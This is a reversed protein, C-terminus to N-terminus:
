KHRVITIITAIAVAVLLTLAIWLWLPINTVWSSTETKEEAVVTFSFTPSSESLFPETIRVQWFYTTDWDLEADYDYSVQSLKTITVIQELSSDKALTLEYETAEAQPTWSFSPSRDVNAAEAAPTLLKPSSHVTPSPEQSPTSEVSFSMVESWEGKGTEGTVARTVRMKWYYTEGAELPVTRSFLEWTPAFPSDPIVTEQATVQNFDKDKALWLEYKTAQSPHRWKFNINAVKGTDPNVPIVEDMAPAILSPAKFLLEPDIGPSIPQPGLTMCDSFNWLRGTTGTYARNDIAWLDVNGSAKLSTPERTFIVGPSLGTTLSDWTISLPGLAEPNLTRDVGTNSGSSWAGYLIGIQALGYFSQNPQAMSTWGSSAGVVWAYIDGGIGDSAAYIVIYKQIRTDVVVHMNGAVPVAPIPAFQTGGDSSYAVMGQTADGVAVIGAPTATITHGSNLYTDIKTGWKWTQYTGEGKRVFSNELVYLHPIGNIQTVAFDTINVGPLISRWTQGKDLSQRLDNTSRSAFFVSQNAEAPSIRLIIDDTTTSVCLVREWIRGMVQTTSRWLSDFGGTNVSALYLTESNFTVVVDSLFNIATDILGLQNWTNGNDLTISFASEDLPVTTLYGNPWGAADLNASSTGCYARGGDASWAVQANAYGSSGSGTPPKLSPYWCPIPCTIPADTLWTMVTASNTNGLVEGALLKGSTYAGYYSISSIRKNPAAHMLWYGTTDDFRYIGANTTPADISIYCRRLSPAQGSFDFPLELDATLIQAATPSTGAGATTIEVPGWTGWNTTNSAMDHIGINIYTGSANSSAIVLSADTAYSPSFKMAAIDGSFGQAIWSASGPAKLIYVDGNGAGTRTGIAIDYNGYNPSIALAGINNAVPCNTNQWNAGGDASIFVKRPLGADSTVVAVFNPNDPAIAIKWAPLIAGAGMLSTTLEDWKIGGNMSKYVKSNAIDVAYSTRGDFGIAIDNVESPSVIVNDKSSPTDVIDWQTTGANVSVPRAPIILCFGVLLVLSLGLRLRKSHKTRIM